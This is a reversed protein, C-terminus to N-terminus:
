YCALKPVIMTNSPYQSLNIATAVKFNQIKQKSQNSYMLTYNALFKYTIKMSRKCNSCHFKKQRMSLLHCVTVEVPGIESNLKLMVIPEFLPVM